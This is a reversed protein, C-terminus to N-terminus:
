RMGHIVIVARARADDAAAADLTGDLQVVEELQAGLFPQEDPYFRSISFHRKLTDAIAAEDVVTLREALRVVAIV